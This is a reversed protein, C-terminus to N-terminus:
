TNDPVIRSRTNKGEILVGGRGVKLNPNSEIILVRQGTVMKPEAGQAITILDGRDLKVQYEVGDQEKLKSEILHGAVGGAISGAVAGLLPMRNGGGITSGAVAGGIGGAAAGIGPEQPNNDGRIKIKRTSVIVGKLTTSVQGVSQVDYDDGGLKPTCASITLFTFCSSLLFIKKITTNVNM